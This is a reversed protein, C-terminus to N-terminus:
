QYKKFGTSFFIMKLTLTIWKFLTPPDDCWSSIWPVLTSWRM